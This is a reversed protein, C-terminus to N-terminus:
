GSPCTATDERGAAGRSRENWLVTVRTDGYTRSVLTVLPVRPEVRRASEVVALGGPELVLPLTRALLAQHRELEAYPPDALLLTYRRGAAIEDELASGVERPAVRARAPPVDLARLNERLARLPAAGSEVFVCSDAGRSLAEIGLAGSGAFLEVVTCGALQGGAERSCGGRDAEDDPALDHDAAAAEATGGAGSRLATDATPPLRGSLALSGLIDFIAERVRDSTPRTGCGAPALLRRGRWEGGIVRVGM